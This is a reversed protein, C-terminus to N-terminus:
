VRQGAGVDSCAHENRGVFIAFPFKLSIQSIDLCIVFIGM